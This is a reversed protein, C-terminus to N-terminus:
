TLGAIVEAAKKGASVFAAQYQTYKKVLGFALWPKGAAVAEAEEVKAVAIALVTARYMMRCREIEVKACALDAAKKANGTFVSGSGGCKFCVGPANHSGMFFEYGKGSCRKCVTAPIGKVAAKLNNHSSAIKDAETMVQSSTMMPIM